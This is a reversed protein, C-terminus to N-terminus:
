PKIAVILAARTTLDADPLQRFSAALRQRSLGDAVVREVGLIRLGLGELIRLYDSLPARNVYYPRRGRILWWKFSSYAWHHNWPTGGPCALDIQHSMVGGRRLWAAMSRLNDSLDDRNPTHDMDQLAVQTMVLDATLPAVSQASWPCVYSIIQDVDEGM